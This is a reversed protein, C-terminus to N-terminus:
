RTSRLPISPYLLDLAGTDFPFYRYCVLVQNISIMCLVKKKGIWFGGGCGALTGCILKAVWKDNGLLPNLAVGEIGIQTIATNRLIGDALTLFEEVAPVKLLSSVM